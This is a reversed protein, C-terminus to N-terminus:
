RSRLKRLRNHRIRRFSLHFSPHIRSRILSSRRRLRNSRHCSLLFSPLISRHHNSRFRHFQTRLHEHRRGTRKSFLSQDLRQFEIKSCFLCLAFHCFHFRRHLSRLQSGHQDAFNNTKPVVRNWTEHQFSGSASIKSCALQGNRQKTKQKGDRGTLTLQITNM